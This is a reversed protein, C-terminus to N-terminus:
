RQAFVIQRNRWIYDFGSFLTLAVAICMCIFGPLESGFLPQGLLVVLVAIIQSVTKLKGWFGAAIVTGAGMAVIRLSTVALERAIIIMVFWANTLGLELFCVLAAIILLKDALPDFFKGFTTVQNRSRAIYGDLFDTASALVFCLVALLRGHPIPLLLFIMFVPISVIRAVTLKNATNM